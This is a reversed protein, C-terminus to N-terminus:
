SEEELIDIPNIYGNEDKEWYLKEKPPETLFQHPKSMYFLDMVSPKYKKYTLPNALTYSIKEFSLSTTISPNMELAKKLFVIQYPEDPYEWQPLELINDVRRIQNSLVIEIHVSNLKLGAQNLNHLMTQLLTDKDMSCTVAKKNIISTIMDLTKSLDNSHVEVLFLPKEILDEMKIFIENSDDRKTAEYIIDRLEISIYLKDMESTSIVIEEGKPNVIIIRYVYDEYLSSKNVDDESDCEIEDMIFKLKYKSYDNGSTLSLSNFEIEFFDEFEKSWKMKRIFAELLHKASLMKQTIQNSTLEAALKGPNIFNNIYALDGYCKYCIGEGRAASACTMPSRLYITKGIMDKQYKSLLYEMGNPTFRYYRKDLRTLVDINDITIKMYNKTHCDYHSDPHIFSDQNNLGLLRAFYGSNGVNGDVIVQALRGISSEIFFSVLDNMGGNIFSKDVSIPYIGGKGDPKPGVHVGFEKFQKTNVGEKARFFYSLCHESNIIKDIVKNTAEMGLDKLKDFPVDKLELHMLERFEPDQKMLDIFDELNITNSLYYSFNDIKAFLSVANDILNNMERSNMTTINDSVFFKDIYRKIHSNTVGGMMFMLHKAELRQKSSVILSWLILNLWYDFITLEVDLGDEFIIQVFCNQVEDTEIGDKMINTIDDFHKKWTDVTIESAHIVTHGTTILEKYYEYDEFYFM